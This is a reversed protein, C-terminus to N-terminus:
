NLGSVAGGERDEKWKKRDAERRLSSFVRLRSSKSSKAVNGLVETPARGKVQVRNGLLHNIERLVHFYFYFL